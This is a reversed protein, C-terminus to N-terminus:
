LPRPEENPGARYGKCEVEPSRALLEKLQAVMMLRNEETYPLGMHALMEPVSFHVAGTADEWMGPALDRVKQNIRPDISM